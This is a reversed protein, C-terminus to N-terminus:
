VSDPGAEGARWSRAVTMVFPVQETSLWGPDDVIVYVVKVEDLPNVFSVETRGTKVLNQLMGKEPSGWKDIMRLGFWGLNPHELSVRVTKKGPVAIGYASWGAPRQAVGQVSSVEDPLRLALLLGKRAMRKISALVDRQRGEWYTVTPM